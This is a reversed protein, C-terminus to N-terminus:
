KMKTDVILVYPIGEIQIRVRRENSNNLITGKFGKFPGNMIEVEKGTEECNNVSIKTGSEITMKILEIDDNSVTAPVKNFTICSVIKPNQLVKYIENPNTRVFVYGPFLPEYITKRQRNMWLSVKALLPLFVDFGQEILWQYARKEARPFTYFLYWDLVEKM